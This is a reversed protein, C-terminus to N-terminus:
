VERARGVVLAVQDGDEVLLTGPTLELGGNLRRPLEHIRLVAVHLFLGALQEVHELLVRLRPCADAGNELERLM